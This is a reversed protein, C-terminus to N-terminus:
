KGKRAPKRTAGAHLIAMDLEHFVHNMAFKFHALDFWLETYRISSSDEDPYRFATGKPDIEELELIWERIPSKVKKGHQKEVLHVCRKLSHTAEAFEGIIKLYLELTHRYAFLVPYAWHYLEDKELASQLMSEAVNRYNRALELHGHTGGGCFLIGHRWTEDLDDPPEQLLPTHWFLHERFRDEYHEELNLGREIDELDVDDWHTCVYLLVLLDSDRFSRAMGKPPNADRSLHDKFVHAWRRVLAGDTGLVKATQSVNRNM